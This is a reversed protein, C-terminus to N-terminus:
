QDWSSASAQAEVDQMIHDPAFRGRKILAGTYRTPDPPNDAHGYIVGQPHYATWYYDNGSMVRRSGDRRYLMVVLVGDDPLSAWTATLSDYVQGDDYWIRWGVVETAPQDPM